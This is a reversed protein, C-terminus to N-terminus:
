VQRLRPDLKDRLWDGLLNLSLVVLGIAIGPFTSVWWATNLFARGDSVMSGWVPEPPPIGVGLYSLAAEILIVYGVQLTALVIILHTLNPFIHRAIIRQPSVGAVKALAVFDREKLSLVEARVQRTYGAWLLLAIIIVLNMFGAGLTVTLVMALLIFPVSLALDVLRMIIVDIWSGFYGAVLGLFTGVTGAMAIALVCFELTTRTGVIVRSLVDRGLSDTGMPNSWNGDWFGPENRSSLDVDTTSHPALWPGFVGVFVFLFLIFMPVYILGPRRWVASRV